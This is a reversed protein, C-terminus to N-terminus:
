INYCTNYNVIDVVTALLRLICHSFFCFLANFFNSMGSEELGYETPFAYMHNPVGDPLFTDKQARIRHCNWVGDKFSDLEKQLMPVM